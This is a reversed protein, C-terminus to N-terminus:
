ILISLAMYILLAMVLMELIGHKRMLCVGIALSILWKVHM